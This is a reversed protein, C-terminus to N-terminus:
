AAFQAVDPLRQESKSRLISELKGEEKEKREFFLMGPKIRARSSRSPCDVVMRREERGLSTELNGIKRPM